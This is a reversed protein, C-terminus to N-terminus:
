RTVFYFILRLLGHAYLGALVDDTMVGWGAKLNQSLNVPFPKLVDMLRFLFFGALVWVVPLDQFFLLTVWMGVVEDINIMRADHGERKETEGAAWVGIFYLIVAVALLPWGSYQKVPIWFLVGM